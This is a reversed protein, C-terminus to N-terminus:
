EPAGDESPSHGEAMIAEIRAWIADRGERSLASFFAMEDPALGLTRSILSAQKARENKSVKDCKTIVVLVPIDYARLWQLMLRDEEAPTRRVDVILVVCALCSRGALYTEVMPGWQRKVEPPVRAFGYGPLDVLMLSGNVRFFNILQTRGPTSSTRVLSKRNVLVNILSSKGVNSRGVFAIELLDGPPYHEPRTGSTVFEASTINVM